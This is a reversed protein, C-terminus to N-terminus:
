KQGPLREYWRPAQMGQGGKWLQYTIQMHGLHLATHDVVHLIAWRVPVERDQAQRIGNLDAESLIDFVEKTEQGAKELLDLM